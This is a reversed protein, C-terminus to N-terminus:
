KPFLIRAAEEVSAHSAALQIFTLAQEDDNEIFELGNLKSLMIYCFLATRKNGDIFFHDKVLSMVISSIREEPREYYYFSSYCSKLEEKRQRDCSIGTFAENQGSIAELPVLIMEAMM